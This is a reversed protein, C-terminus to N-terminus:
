RVSSGICVQVTAMRRASELTRRRGISLAGTRNSEQDGQIKRKKIRALALPTLVIANAPAPQRRSVIKSEGLVVQSARKDTEESAPHLVDATTPDRGFAKGAPDRLDPAPLNTRTRSRHQLLIM